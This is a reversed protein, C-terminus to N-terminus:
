KSIKSLAIIFNSAHKGPRYMIKTSESHPHTFIESCLTTSPTIM